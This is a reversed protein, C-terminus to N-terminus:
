SQPRNEKVAAVVYQIGSIVTVLLVSVILVWIVVNLVIVPGLSDSKLLAEWPITLVTVLLMQLVTKLKGGSGAPLIQGKQRAIERWITIGIERVAVVAVFWWPLWYPEVAAFMVFAGLILIKDALPDALKGFNTILGQKRAIEGDLHDTYAAVVFVGLAWWRLTAFSSLDTEGAYWEQLRSGSEWLLWLYIPVMVLRLATLANPVNFSSVKTEADKSAM